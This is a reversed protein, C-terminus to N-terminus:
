LHPNGFRPDGRTKLFTIKWFRDICGDTLFIQFGFKSYVLLTSFLKASLHLNGHLVKAPDTPIAVEKFLDTVVFLQFGNPQLFATTHTSGTLFVFQM